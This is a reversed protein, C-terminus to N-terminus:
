GEGLATRFAEIEPMASEAWALAEDSVTQRGLAKAAIQKLNAAHVRYFTASRENEAGPDPLDALFELAERLRAVEEDREDPQQLAAIVWDLDDNSLHCGVCSKRVEVLQEILQKTDPSTM